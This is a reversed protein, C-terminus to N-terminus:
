RSDKGNEKRREAKEGAELEKVPSEESMGGMLTRIKAIEELSFEQGSDTPIDAFIKHKQIFASLFVKKEREWLRTYFDFLFEIELKEAITCDAGLTTRCKRGTRSYVLSYALGGNTVKYVIQRLLKEQEAGHFYFDRRERVEDEIEDERIEYKQMLQKLIAEANEAEGGVGREALVTLAKLKKLLADKNM